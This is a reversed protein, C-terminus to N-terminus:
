SAEKDFKGCAGCNCAPGRCPRKGPKLLRSPTFRYERLTWVAGCTLCHDTRRQENRGVVICDLSSPVTCTLLRHDLPTCECMATDHCYTIVTEGPDANAYLEARDSKNRRGVMRQYSAGERHFARMRKM